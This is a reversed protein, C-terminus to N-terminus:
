PEGGQEELPPVYPVRDVHEVPPVVTAPPPVISSVPADLIQFRGSPTVADSTVDRPPTWGKLEEGFGLGQRPPRGDKTTSALYLDERLENAETQNLVTISVRRNKFRGEPTANDAIPRYEAYGVASMRGPHVGNKEFQQVVSAARAASLVWNSSFVGGSVPTNDTFGEIRMINPFNRLIKGLEDVIKRAEENLQTSGSEFLVSSKIEIEVYDDDHRVAILDEDILRALAQEVHDAIEALPANAGGMGQRKRGVDPLPLDPASIINPTQRYGLHDTQPAKAPNGIQIPTLTKQPSRFAALLADSLVRFKGENVSSVSYMVVFFAFLLTIFDAYSILWREHNEHEEHKKKRAM